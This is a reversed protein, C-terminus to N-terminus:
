GYSIVAASPAEEAGFLRGAAPEVGLVEFYNRTVMEGLTRFSESGTSASLPRMGHGALELVGATGARFDELDRYSTNGYRPGSYDSTFVAVVQEPARVHAPPRLFVTNILTFVTTTAGIGLALMTIALASFAPSLRLRRLALRLDLLM